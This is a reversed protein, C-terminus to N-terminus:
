SIRQWLGANTGAGVMSVMARWTGTISDGSPNAGGSTGLQFYCPTLTAAAVTANATVNGSDHRAFIYAGIGFAPVLLTASIVGSAATITTNDVKVVGFVTSSGQPLASSGWTSGTSTLVNAATGPAVFQPSSAGNGLIVNNATLTSLGTGGDAVSVDTGGVRYIVAGAQTVGSALDMTPAAGATLTAFTTYSSGTVNYAQLTLTSGSSTSTQLTTANTAATARGQADFTVNPANYTGATVATNALSITGTTTIPGGSLGTGTGVSTVTGSGVSDSFFVDAGDSYTLRRSSQTIVVGVGASTKVTLTFAGTTNNYMLWENINNPMVVTKNGTLIGTFNIINYAAEAATLTVSGTGAVSKSLQTISSTNPTLRGVTYFITGDTELLFGENPGVTITASGDITAGNGDLTLSGSGANKIGTFWNSGLTAPNTLTLIGAGGTWISLAARNGVNLASNTSYTLPPMSQSLQGAQAILGYGALMSADANTTGSGINAVRWIGSSTSNDAVWIRKAQGASVTTIGGGTSNNITITFSGYNNFVCEAGEGVETADPMTAVYAATATIDIWNTATYTANHNNSPWVLAINGTMSIQSYNFPNPNIPDGGVSIVYSM